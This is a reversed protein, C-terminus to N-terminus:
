SDIQENTLRMPHAKWQEETLTSIVGAKDRGRLRPIVYEDAGFRRWQRRISSDADHQMYIMQCGCVDFPFDLIDTITRRTMFRPSDAAASLEILGHEPSYNHYIVVAVLKTDDVVGFARYKEWGRECGEIREAAWRM